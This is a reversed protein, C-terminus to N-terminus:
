ELIVVKFHNGFGKIKKAVIVSEVISPDFNCKEFSNCLFKKQKYLGLISPLDSVALKDDIFFSDWDYEETYANRDIVFGIFEKNTEKGCLSLFMMIVEYTEADYLGELGLEFLMIKNKLEKIHCYFSADEKLWWIFHIDASSILKEIFKKRSVNISEGENDLLQVFGSNPYELQVNIKKLQREMEYFLKENSLVSYLFAFGDPMVYKDEM